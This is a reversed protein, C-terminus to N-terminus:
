SQPNDLTPLAQIQKMKTLLTQFLLYDKPHIPTPGHLTSLQPHLENLRLLYAQRSPMHFCFLSVHSAHRKEATLTPLPQTLLFPAALPQLAAWAQLRQFGPSAPERSIILLSQAAPETQALTLYHRANQCSSLVLSLSAILAPLLRTM